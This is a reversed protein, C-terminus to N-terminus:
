QPPEFSFTVRYVGVEAATAKWSEVAKRASAAFGFGTPNETADFVAIKGKCGVQFTVRAEGSAHAALAEAPYVPPIQQIAAPPEPMDWDKVTGPAMCFKVDLQYQGGLGPAYRGSKVFEIAAAAFDYGPPNESLATAETVIGQDSITFAVVVIGAMERELAVDPYRLPERELPAPPKPRPQGDSAPAATSMASAALLISFAAINRM